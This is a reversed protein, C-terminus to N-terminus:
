EVPLLLDITDHRRYFEVSPRTQDPNGAQVLEDFTPGIRAYVKPPDGRLRARLFVGGPLTEPELGLADDGEMVTTCVAYEGQRPWFLGYMKRGKLSPLRSELERWMRPAMEAVEGPDGRERLCLLPVEELEVRDFYSGM